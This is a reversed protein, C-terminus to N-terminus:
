PRADYVSVVGTREAYQIIARDATVLPVGAQSATAILIRDIPDGHITGPLQTSALLITRDVPTFAFGPQQSARDIWTAASPALSLKGKAAKTGVEWVSMDSVLLGHTAAARRLWAVADHSLVGPAGNLYWIWIHTDILAPADIPSRDHPHWIRPAERVARGGRSAGRRAPM